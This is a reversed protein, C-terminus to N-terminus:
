AAVIFKDITNSLTAKSVAGVVRDIPQGSQFLMLTPISRIGFQTATAPNEDVNLKLVTLRGSYQAAVEEVVPGVVRCPGCWPAWFDVLVPGTSELVESRFTSDTVSQVSSM